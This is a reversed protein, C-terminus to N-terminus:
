LKIQENLYPLLDVYSVNLISGNMGSLGFYLSHKSSVAGPIFWTEVITYIHNNYRINNGILNVADKM